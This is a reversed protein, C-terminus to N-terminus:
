NEAKGDPRTRDLYLRKDRDSYFGLDVSAFRLISCGEGVPEFSVREGILADSVFFWQGDWKIEGSSRVRRVHHSSPYDIEPLTQPFLRQSATYIRHPPIQDLAEHPRLFNYKYVFQDFPEQQEVANAAPHRCAQAKLDRHMREHRGNQQPKGPQTLRILIGLRIWWVALRSLRRVSNSSFPSGNDSLIMEPLGFEEFLRIFVAKTLEFSTSVLSECGILFRSFSDAVTLPYCYCRDRTRFQGKFDVSWQQNPRDLVIVPPPGPHSFRRKNSHPEVLGARRIWEHATSPSPWQIDPDTDHLYAIIKRAGWEPFEQRVDLVSLITEAEAWSEGGHPARSRGALGALGAEDRRVLMKYGTKRSIGFEKCLASMSMENTTVRRGHERVFRIKQEMPTTEEWPM